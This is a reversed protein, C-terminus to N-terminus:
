QNDPNLGQNILEQNVYRVQRRGTPTNLTFTLKVIKKNNGNALKIRVKGGSFSANVQETLSGEYMVVPQSILKYKDYNSTKVGNADKTEKSAWPTKSLDFVVEMNSSSGGTGTWASEYTTTESTTMTSTKNKDALTVIVTVYKEMEGAHVGLSQAPWQYTFEPIQGPAYPITDIRVHSAVKYGDFDIDSNITGEMKQAILSGVKQKYEATETGEGNDLNLAATYIKTFLSKKNGKWGPDYRGGTNLFKQIMEPYNFDYAAKQFFFVGVEAGRFYLDLMTRDNIMIIMAIIIIYKPFSYKFFTAMSPRGDEGIECAEYFAQAKVDPILVGKIFSTGDGQGMSKIFDGVKMFGTRGKKADKRLRHQHHVEDFLDPNSLYIVTSSMSIVMLTLAYITMFPLIKNLVASAFKQMLAAARTSTGGENHFTGDMLHEYTAISGTPGSATLVEPYVVTILLTIICVTLILLNFKHTWSRPRRNSKEIRQKASLSRYAVAFQSM